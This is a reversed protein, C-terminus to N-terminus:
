DAHHNLNIPDSDQGVSYSLAHHAGRKTKHGAGRFCHEYSFKLCRGDYNIQVHHLLIEQPHRAIAMM